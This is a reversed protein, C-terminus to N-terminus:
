EELLNILRTLENEVLVAQKYNDSTLSTQTIYHVIALTKYLLLKQKYNVQKKM